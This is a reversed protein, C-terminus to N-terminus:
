KATVDGNRGGRRRGLAGGHAGVGKSEAMLRTEVGPICATTEEVEARLEAVLNVVDEDGV